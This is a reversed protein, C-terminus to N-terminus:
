QGKKKRVIRDLLYIFVALNEGQPVCKFCASLTLLQKPDATM